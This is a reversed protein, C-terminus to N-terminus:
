AAVEDEDFNITRGLARAAERMLDKRTRLLGSTDGSRPGGPRRLEEYVYTLKRSLENPLEPTTLVDEVQADASARRAEAAVRRGDALREGNESRPRPAPKVPRHEPCFRPKKGRVLPRTCQQKCTECTLTETTNM